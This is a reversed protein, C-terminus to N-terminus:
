VALTETSWSTKEVVEIEAAPEPSVVTPTRSVGFRIVPDSNLIM